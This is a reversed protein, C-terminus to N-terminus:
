SSNSLFVKTNFTPALRLALTLSASTTAGSSMTYVDAVFLYQRRVGSSTKHPKKWDVQWAVTTTGM